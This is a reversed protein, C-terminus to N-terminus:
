RTHAGADSDASVEDCAEGAEGDEEGAPLEPVRELPQLLAGPAFAGRRLASDGLPPGAAVAEAGSAGRRLVQSGRHHSSDRARLHHTARREIQLAPGKPFNHHANEL